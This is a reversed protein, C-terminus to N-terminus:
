RRDVERFERWVLHTLDDLREQFQELAHRGHDVAIERQEEDRGQQLCNM